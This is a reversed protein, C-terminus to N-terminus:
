IVAKTNVTPSQNERFLMTSTYYEIFYRLLLGAFLAVFSSILDIITPVWVCHSLTELSIQFLGLVNYDVMLKRAWISAVKGFVSKKYLRTFYLFAPRLQADADSLCKNKM